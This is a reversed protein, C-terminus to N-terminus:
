LHSAAGKQAHRRGSDQSPAPGLGPAFTLTWVTFPARFGHKKINNHLDRLGLMFHLPDLRRRSITIIFLDRIFLGGVSAEQGLLVNKKKKIRLAAVQVSNVFKNGAIAPFHPPCPYLQAVHRETSHSASWICMEGGHECSSLCSPLTVYARERASSLVWVVQADPPFFASLFGCTEMRQFTPLLVGPHRQVPRFRM